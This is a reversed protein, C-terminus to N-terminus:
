AASETRDLAAGRWLEIRTGKGEEDLRLVKMEADPFVKERLEKTVADLGGFPAILDILWLRDGAKWDGPQLRRVGSLFRKEADETLWAWSVFAVPVNDRRFIRFQQHLLSPMLLWELDTMFLHRHAPSNMMLWTAQGMISAADPQPPPTRAVAQAAAAAQDSGPKPIEAPTAPASM